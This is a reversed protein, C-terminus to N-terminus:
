STVPYDFKKFISKVRTDVDRFTVHLSKIEGKAWGQWILKNTKADIM